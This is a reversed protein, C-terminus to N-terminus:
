TPSACNSWSVSYRPTVCTPGTRCAQVWPLFVYLTRTIHSAQGHVRLLLTLGQRRALATDVFRRALVGLGTGPESVTVPAEAAPAGQNTVDAIAAGWTQYYDYYQCCCLGQPLIV